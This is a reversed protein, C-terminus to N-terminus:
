PQGKSAQKRGLAKVLKETIMGVAREYRINGFLLEPLPDPINIETAWQTFLNDRAEAAQESTLEKRKNNPGTLSWVFTGKDTYRKRSKVLELHTYDGWENLSRCNKYPFVLTQSTQNTTKM